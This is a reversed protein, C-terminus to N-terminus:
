EEFAGSNRALELPTSFREEAQVFVGNVGLEEDKGLWVDATWLRGITWRYQLAGWTLAARSYEEIFVREILSPALVVRSTVLNQSDVGVFLSTMFARFGKLYQPKVYAILWDEVNDIDHHSLISPLEPLKIAEGKIWTERDM